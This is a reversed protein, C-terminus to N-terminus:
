LIQELHKMQMLVQSYSALLQMAELCLRLTFIKFIKNGCILMM